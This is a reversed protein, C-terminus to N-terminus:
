EPSDIPPRLARLREVKRVRRSQVIKLRLLAAHDGSLSLHMAEDELDEIESELQRPENQKLHERLYQALEAIAMCAATFASILSSLSM